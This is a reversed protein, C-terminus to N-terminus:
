MQVTNTVQPMDHWDGDVTCTYTAIWDKGTKPDLRPLGHEVTFSNSSVEVSSFAFYTLLAVSAHTGSM